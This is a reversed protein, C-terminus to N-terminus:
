AVQLVRMEESVGRMLAPQPGGPIGGFVLGNLWLSGEQSGKAVLGASLHGKLLRSSVAVWKAEAKQM